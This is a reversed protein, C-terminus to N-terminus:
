QGAEQRLKAYEDRFERQWRQQLELRKTVSASKWEGARKIAEKQGFPFRGLQADLEAAQPSALIAARTKALEDQPDICSFQILDGLIGFTKEKADSKNFGASATYPNTKDTFDAVNQYVDPRIPPRRLSTQRPGGPAGARVNWLRQGEPSLVFEIFRLAVARNPAGKILGIPDPTVATAAAPEVYAMRDGGVSDTQSKGYFDIAMGAGADGTSVIVPVTSASDNFQRANAAIQRILGMGQAWGEDETRGAAVADAMAREVIIMYTAKASSSRTPDALILWSRWRPDALDRWTKPEPVGLYRCVDKNYVIGFSSLATGFWRPPFRLGMIRSDADYLRVGALTPRPFVARMLDRDLSVFDLVGESKLQQDFLIDGGGWALDVGYTGSAKFADRSAQFFKVIDTGGGYSRYDILVTQGFKEKHWASFAEAFERRIGEQHANIIVLTTDGRTIQPTSRGALRRLVFPAVLVVAFLLIPWYRKM